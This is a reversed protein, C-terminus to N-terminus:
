EVETLGPSYSSAYPDAMSVLVKRPGQFPERGHSTLMNDLVLVDGREWRFSVTEQRYAEKMEELTAAEIPTGDGYMTHFPLDEEKVAQLMSERVSTELSSNNFFLAHNFWTLAGTLPHKRVAPRVQRTRLRNSSKWEVEISMRRCHQEVVSREATQFVEQWSLGLGGGYNRVYMIKKEIFRRVIQRDLRELIKRSDAIPTNGGELAPLACCFMIKLPWNLTYSQENHLIIYQDAPHDTSSYIRNHIRTRPSSREGYEILESSVAAAFLQFREASSIEFGRFLIAGHEVLRSEILQRHQTAWATLDVQSVAPQMVLPLNQEPAFSRSQVLAEPSLKVAAPKRSRYKEFSTETTHRKDM